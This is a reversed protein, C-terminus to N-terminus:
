LPASGPPQSRLRRALDQADKDARELGDIVAALLADFFPATWDPAWSCRMLDLDSETLSAMAMWQDVMYRIQDSDMEASWEFTDSKGAIDSWIALLTDCLDLLDDDVVVSVEHRHARIGHIISRSNALWAVVIASAVPGVKVSVRVSV